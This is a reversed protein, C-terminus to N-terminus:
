IPHHLHTTSSWWLRGGRWNSGHGDFDETNWRTWDGLGETDGQRWRRPESIILCDTIVLMPFLSIYITDTMNILQLVGKKTAGYWWTKHVIHVMSGWSERAVLINLIHEHGSKRMTLEPRLVSPVIDPQGICCAMSDHQNYWSKKEGSSHKMLGLLLNPCVNPRDTVGYETPVLFFKLDIIPPSHLVPTVHSFIVEM